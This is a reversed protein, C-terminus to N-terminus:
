IMVELYDKLLKACHIKGAYEMLKNINRDSRNIYNKLVEVAPEFGLKNRYFLMDCVTKEVDYIKFQNTDETITEIGLSYREDTFLYYKIEPWEPSNPIRSRRPLAVDIQLPRSSSLNHYVAASTLCIIGKSAYARIVSFENIDGDYKLNEFYYRNIPKLKGESVLKNIKYSSMGADYLDKRSVFQQNTYNM